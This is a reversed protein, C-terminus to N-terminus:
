FKVKIKKQVKLRIKEKPKIDEKNHKRELDAKSLNSLNESSTKSPPNCMDCAPNIEVGFFLTPQYNPILEACITCEIIDEEITDESLATETVNTNLNSTIPVFKENVSQNEVATAHKVKEELNIRMRREKGLKKKWVKIEKKSNKKAEDMEENFKEASESLESNLKQFQDQLNENYSTLHLVEENHQYIKHGLEIIDENTSQKHILKLNFNEEEAASLKSDLNEVKLLLNANSHHLQQYGLLTNQYQTSLNQSTQELKFVKKYLFDNEAKIQDFTTEDSFKAKLPNGNLDM